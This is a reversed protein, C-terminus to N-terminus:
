TFLFLDVEVGSAIKKIKQVVCVCLVERACVEFVVGNFMNLVVKLFKGMILSKFAGEILTILKM